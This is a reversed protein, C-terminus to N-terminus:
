WVHLARRDPEAGTGPVDEGPDREGPELHRTCVREDGGAHDGDDSRGNWVTWVAPVHLVSGLDASGSGTALLGREVANRQVGGASEDRSEVRVDDGEHVGWVRQERGGHVVDDGHNSSTRRLMSGPVREIADVWVRGIYESGGDVPQLKSADRKGARDNCGTDRRCEHRVGAIGGDDSDKWTEAAT